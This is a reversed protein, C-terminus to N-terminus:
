VHEGYGWGGDTFGTLEVPIFVDITSGPEPQISLVDCLVVATDLDNESLDAVSQADFDPDVFESSGTIFELTQTTGDTFTVLVRLRLRARLARIEAETLDLQPALYDVLREDIEANNVITLAVHGPVNSIGSVDSDPDIVNIFAPNFADCGALSASLIGALIVPMSPARSGAMPQQGTDIPPAM